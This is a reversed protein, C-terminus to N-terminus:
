SQGCRGGFLLWRARDTLIACCTDFIDRAAEQSSKRAQLRTPRWTRLPLSHRITCCRRSIRFLGASMSQTAISVRRRASRANRRCGDTAVNRSGHGSSRSQTFGRLLPALYNFVSRVRFSRRMASVVGSRISCGGSNGFGPTLCNERLHSALSASDTMATTARSVSRVPGEIKTAIRSGHEPWISCCM